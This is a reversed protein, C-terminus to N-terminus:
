RVLGKAGLVLASHICALLEDPKLPKALYCGAGARLARARIAEDPYATVLITPIFTSTAVLHEYLDLGSMGPMRVDAILCAAPLIEQSILFDAASPFGSVIFGFSRVLALAAELASADDDVIAILADGPMGDSERTGAPGYREFGFRRGM